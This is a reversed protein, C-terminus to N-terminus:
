LTTQAYAPAPRPSSIMLAVPKKSTRINKETTTAIHKPHQIISVLGKRCTLYYVGHNFLNAYSSYKLNQLSQPHSYARVYRTRTSFFWM